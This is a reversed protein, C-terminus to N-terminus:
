WTSFDIRNTKSSYHYSSDPWETMGAPSSHHVTIEINPNEIKLKKIYAVIKSFEDYAKRSNKAKNRDAKPLNEVDKHTMALIRKIGSMNQLIEKALKRCHECEVYSLVISSANWQFKMDKGIVAGCIPIGNLVVHVKTARTENAFYGTEHLRLTKEFEVTNM